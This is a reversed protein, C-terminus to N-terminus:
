IIILEARLAGAERLAELIAVMDTATTGTENLADVLTQLEIGPDFVFARAPEQDVEIETDAATTAATGAVTASTGVVTGTGESLVKTDEKIKVSLSGHAVAAPTIRVDGGIVVTGTRSNVVVKAKPRVPEFSINELLGIFSVKQSPDSPTRVKISTADLPVAVDPGFTKNISEAVKNAQSFDSQHLNLVISKKELFTNEVLKEVTAGGPIRGVTPTGQITSSGDAGEIGLGGVVLNGQAIAYVKGDAGKLATMLLTGGKLSKAKGITSVTIDITQGPKAFAPLNSTVMVTASNSGDIDATSAIVGFQSIMAAISQKTLNVSGDGTKALGIVLGYGVLQNSRIGAFSVLDKIRDASVKNSLLFPFLFLFIIILKKNM